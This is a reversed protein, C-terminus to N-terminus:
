GDFPGAIKMAVVFCKRNSKIEYKVKRSKALVLLGNELAIKQGDFILHGYDSYKDETLVYFITLKIGNDVDCSNDRKEKVFCHDKEDFFSIEFVETIQLQLNMKANLEFPLYSLDELLSKIPKFDEHQLDAISVAWLKDSRPREAVPLPSKQLRFYKPGEIELVTMKKVANETSERFKRQVAFANKSLQGLLDPSLQNLLNMQRAKAEDITLGDTNARLSMPNALLMPAKSITQEKSLITDKLVSAVYRNLSEGICKALIKKRMNVGEGEESFDPLEM